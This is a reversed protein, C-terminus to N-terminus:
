STAIEEGYIEQIKIVCRGYLTRHPKHAWHLRSYEDPHLGWLWAFLHDVRKIGCRNGTLITPPWHTGELDRKLSPKSFAVQGSKTVSQFEPRIGAFYDELLLFDDQYKRVREYYIRFQAM